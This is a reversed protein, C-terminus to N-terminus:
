SKQASPVVYALWKKMRMAVKSIIHVPKGHNTYIAATGGSGLSLKRAVTEDSFLIKVAYLGDSGVNAANSIVGGPAFQGGGSAPIVTNVKASFIRGPYPDLVLEVDNGPEVNSLYNQPFVAAVYIDSTDVFTGAAAIPASTLMTGPQVQWNVVYGDSPAKMKCQDLNFLADDLQAQIVSVNSQAVDAAFGAQHASAEAQQLTSRAAAFAAVAQQQDAEAQGVAADAQQLAADAQVRTQTAQAVQLVSIAGAYARQTNLAIKEQTKTLDDAARAKSLNANANAVGAKAQELAAQAQNIGDKAKGVNANAADFAAKAQDVNAKSSKLQAAAQDVAYQYPAPEIELLLDGRKMPQNAQAHVAKVQGKVYPVLQIVYQTTVLKESIPASLTWAVVVGGIMLVGAVLIGAILFPTPKIRLVKFILAIFVAYVIVLLAIM